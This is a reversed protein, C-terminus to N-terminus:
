HRKAEERTGDRKQELRISRILSEMMMPVLLIMEPCFLRLDRMWNKM